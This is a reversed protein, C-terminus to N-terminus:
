GSEEESEGSEEESQCSEEESEGSEEESEGSESDDDCSAMMRAMNYRESDAMFMIYLTFPTTNGCFSQTSTMECQVHLGKWGGETETDKLIAFYEPKDSNRLQMVMGDPFQLGGMKDATVHFFKTFIEKVDAVQEDTFNEDNTWEKMALDLLSSEDLTLNVSIENTIM